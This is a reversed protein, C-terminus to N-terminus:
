ISLDPDAVTETAERGWWQVGQSGLALRGWLRHSQITLMRIKNTRQFMQKQKEKLATEEGRLVCFGEGRAAGWGCNRERRKVEPGVQRLM